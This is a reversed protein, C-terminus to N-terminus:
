KINAIVGDKYITIFDKSNNIKILIRDGGPLQIIKDDEGITHKTYNGLDEINSNDFEKGPTFISKIENLLEKNM